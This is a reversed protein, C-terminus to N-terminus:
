PDENLRDKLSGQYEKQLNNYSSPDRLFNKLEILATLQGKAYDELPKGSDTKYINNIHELSKSIHYEIYFSLLEIDIQDILTNQDDFEPTLTVDM